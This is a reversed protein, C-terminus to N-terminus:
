LHGKILRFLIIFTRKNPTKPIIFTRKPIIFTRKNELRIKIFRQAKALQSSKFFQGYAYLLSHKIVLM